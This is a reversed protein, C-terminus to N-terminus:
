HHHHHHYHSHDPAHTSSCFLPRSCDTIFTCAATYLTSKDFEDSATCTTYPGSQDRGEEKLLMSTFM